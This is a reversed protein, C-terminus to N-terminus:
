PCFQIDDFYVVGETGRPGSSPYEFVFVLEYMNTRSSLPPAWPVPQLSTIPVDISQWLHTSAVNAWAVGWEQTGVTDYRKLEVKIRSPIHYSDLVRFDFRLRSYETIDAGCLGISYAVWDYVTYRMVAICAHGTEERYAVDVWNSYETTDYAPWMACGLNNINNCGDFDAVTLCAPTPTPTFTPTSQPTLTATPTPSPTPYNALVIPLWLGYSPTTSGQPATTGLVSTSADGPAISRAGLLCVIAMAALWTVATTRRQM